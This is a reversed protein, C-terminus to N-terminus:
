AIYRKVMASTDFLCANPVLPERDRVADRIRDLPRIEAERNPGNPKLKEFFQFGDGLGCDGEDLWQPWHWGASSDRAHAVATSTTWLPSVRM